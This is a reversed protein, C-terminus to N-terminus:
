LFWKKYWMFVSFFLISIGLLIMCCSAIRLKPYKHVNKKSLKLFTLPPQIFSIFCGIVAGAFGIIFSVSEVTLGVILAFIVIFGSTVRMYKINTRNQVSMFNLIVARAGYGIIPFSCCLVFTMSIRSIYTLLSGDEFNTLINDKTSIGFSLYGLASVTGYFVFNISIASGIVKNMKSVSRRGLERYFTNINIHASFAFLM